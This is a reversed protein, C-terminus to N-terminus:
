AGAEILLRGYAVCADHTQEIYINLTDYADRDGAHIRKALQKVYEAAVEHSVPVGGQAIVHRMVEDALLAGQPTATVDELNRIVQENV